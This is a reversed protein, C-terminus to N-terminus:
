GRSKHVAYHDFTSRPILSVHDVSEMEALCVKEWPCTSCKGIRVPPVAGQMLPGECGSQHAITRLRFDFGHDYHELMTVLRDTWRTPWRPTELDVWWVRDGFRDIVGGMAPQGPTVEGMAELLRWQHALQRG